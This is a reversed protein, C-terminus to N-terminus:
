NPKRLTWLTWLAAGIVAYLFANLSAIVLWVAVLEKATPEIDVYLTLLIAPPCLPFLVTGNMETRFSSLDYAMLGAALIFGLGAFEAAIRLTKSM